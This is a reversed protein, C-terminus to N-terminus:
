LSTIFFNPVQSGTASELPLSACIASKKIGAAGAVTQLSAGEATTQSRNRNNSGSVPTGSNVVSSSRAAALLSEGPLAGPGM